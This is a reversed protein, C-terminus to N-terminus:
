WSLGIGNFHVDNMMIVFSLNYFNRRYHLMGNYSSNDENDLQYQVLLHFIGKANPTLSRMVHTLSSLALTGTQQVMLSNEYSTEENYPEFTTTDYWLWNFASCRNQDWVLLFFCSLSVWYIYIGFGIVIEVIWKKM